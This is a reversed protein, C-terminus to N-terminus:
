DEKKKRALLTVVAAAAMVTVASVGVTAGTAPSKDGANPKAAPKNDQAPTKDGTSPKEGTAPIVKTEVAGCVTCTRQQEGDETATAAKTEKWEGFTHEGTAPIVVGKEVNGCVTCTVDKSGATGCTAETIVEETAVSHDCAFAVTVENTPEYTVTYNNVGDLSVSDKDIPAERDAKVKFDATFLVTDNAYAEGNPEVFVCAMTDPNFTNGFSDSVTYQLKTEDFNLVFRGVAIKSAAQATVTATVTEGKASIDLKLAPAAEAAMAAFGTTLVVAVMAIALLVSLIRKKM